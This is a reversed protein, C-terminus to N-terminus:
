NVSRSIERFSTGGDYILTLTDGATTIFAATLDINGTNAPPTATSDNVTLIGDFQLVIIAGANWSTTTIYDINTTGTIDFYNGDAGLTLTAASAVDAGKAFNVRVSSFDTQTPISLVGNGVDIVGNTQDHYISIFDSTQTADASQIRITPNTVTPVGFNTGLDTYDIILINGSGAAAGVQTALKITDNTEATDWEIRFDQGTGWSQQVDDNFYFFLGTQIATVSSTSGLTVKNSATFDWTLNEATGSNGTMTLIGAAGTLTVGTSTGLQIGGGIPIAALQAGASTQWSQLVASHTASFAQVVLGIDTDAVAKIGVTSSLDTATGFLMTNASSDLFFMNPMTSAEMRIDATQESENFTIESLGVAFVEAAEENRVSLYDATQLTFGQIVLGIDTAVTPIIGVTSSLDTATGFLTTAAAGVVAKILVKDASSYWIFDNTASGTDFNGVLGSAPTVNIIDTITLNPILLTNTTDNWQFNANDQSIAGSAGAFLVSGMTLATINLGGALTAVDTTKNYVFGADGGFVGGDNFQVQTDSGGPAANAASITINGPTSTAITINTGATLDTVGYRGSNTGILLQGAYPVTSTGTGGQEAQIPSVALAPRKETIALGVLVVLLASM